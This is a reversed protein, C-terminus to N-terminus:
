AYALQSLTTGHLYALPQGDETVKSERQQDYWISRTQLDACWAAGSTEEHRPNWAASGVWIRLIYTV